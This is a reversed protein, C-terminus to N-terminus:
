GRVMALILDVQREIFAELDLERRRFHWAKLTWLHGMALIDYAALDTDTLDFLGAAAGQDLIDKYIDKAQTELSMVRKLGAKDLARSSRYVLMVKSRQQDVVQYYATVAKILSEEPGEASELHPKLRRAFETQVDEMILLMIDAPKKVFQHTVPVSIGAADAIEEVTAQRGKRDYLESAAELIRTKIEKLEM